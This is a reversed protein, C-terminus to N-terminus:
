PPDNNSVGESRRCEPGPPTSRLESGPRNSGQRMPRHSLAQGDRQRCDPSAELSTGYRPKFSGVSPMQQWRQARDRDPEGVGVAPRRFEDDDM